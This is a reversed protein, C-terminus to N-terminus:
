DRSKVNSLKQRIGKRTQPSIFSQRTNVPLVELALHPSEAHEAFALFPSLSIFVIFKFLKLRRNNFCFTNMVLNYCKLPDKGYIRAAASSSGGPVM